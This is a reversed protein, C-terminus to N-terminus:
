VLQTVGFHNPTRTIAVACLGVSERLVTGATSSTSTYSRKAYSSLGFMRFARQAVAVEEAFAPVFGLWVVDQSTVAVDHEATVVVVVVFLCSVDYELFIEGGLLLWLPGLAQV